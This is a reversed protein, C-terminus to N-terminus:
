SDGHGKEGTKGGNESKKNYRERRKRYIERLFAKLFPGLSLFYRKGMRRPEQLTRYLWELGARQMWLPARPRTEAFFDFAAGVAAAGRLKLEERHADIWLEQKPATMGVWLIDAGSSAIKELIRREEEEGWEGFPPSYAGAWVVGPYERALRARIRELVEPTSGLFFFSLHQLHAQACLTLFLDPGSVRSKPVGPGHLIRSAVVVGIGDPLVIEAREMASRYSANKELPGVMPLSLTMAARPSEPTGEILFSAAEELSLLSLSLGFLPVSRNEIM